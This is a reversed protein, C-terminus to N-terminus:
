PFRKRPASWLVLPFAWLFSGLALASYMVILWLNTNEMRLMGVFRGEPLLCLYLPRLSAYNTHTRNRYSLYWFAWARFVALISGCLLFVIFSRRPIKAKRDKFLVSLMAVVQWFIFVGLVILTDDVGM